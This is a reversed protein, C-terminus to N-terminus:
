SACDAFCNPTEYVRVSVVRLAPAFMASAVGFLLKAINEATPEGQIVYPVRKGQTTAEGDCFEILDTDRHGAITTHDLNKDIWGGLQAKVVGFDIVRGVSDLEDFGDARTVTVEAAYRHGHLTSCKSEHRLVRHAADWELRRTVSVKGQQM